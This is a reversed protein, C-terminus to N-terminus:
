EVLVLVVSPDSQLRALLTEKADSRIMLTVFRGQPNTTRTFEFLAAIWGQGFVREPRASRTSTFGGGGTAVYVDPRRSVVYPWDTSIHGATGNPDKHGAHAIHADTLGLVDVCRVRAYYPLAGAAFTAVTADRPLARDLWQGMEALGLVQDRWATIRPVLNEHKPSVERVQRHVGFLCALTVLGRSAVRVAPLDSLPTSVRALSAAGFVVFAPTVHAMMRWAPMWDGGIWVVFTTYVASTALLFVLAPEFPRVRRRAVHFLVGITGLAVLALVVSDAALYTQVYLTGHSLRTELSRGQKAVVSNPLLEGYYAVRWANLAVFAPVWVVLARAFRRGLSAGSDSILVVCAAVVVVIVGEFRCSSVAFLAFALLRMSTSTMSWAVLLVFFAFAASELGNRAHAAFASSAALGLGAVLAWAVSRTLRRTLAFSMAVAGAAFAFSLVRAAQPLSERVFLYTGALLFMWLSNSYGECREGANWVAGDGRALNRAYRFTIYADDAFTDFLGVHATFVILAGVCLLVPLARRLRTSM